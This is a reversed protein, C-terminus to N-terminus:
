IAGMNKQYLKQLARFMIMGTANPKAFEGAPLSNSFSAEAPAFPTGPLKRVFGFRLRRLSTGALQGWKAGNQFSKVMGKIGSGSDWPFINLSVALDASAAAKIASQMENFGYNKGMRIMQESTGGDPSFSVSSCGSKHILAAYKKDFAVPSHYAEWSIGLNLSGIMEAVEIGRAKRNNLIPAILFLHTAKYKLLQEIDNQILRLPREQVVKGSIIPYSCYRCGLNCGRNVVVGLALNKEFPVYKDVELLDFRPLNLSGERSHFLGTARNKMLDQVITEGFGTVGCHIYPSAAMIQDSFISFGAGGSIIFASPLLKAVLEIQSLYSSLYSYRDFYSTTDANRLSFGVIDPNYDLLLSKLREMPSNYLNLDEIRISNLDISAAITALGLPLVPHQKRGLWSQVLLIKM